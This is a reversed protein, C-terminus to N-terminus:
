NGIILVCGCNMIKRGVYCLMVLLYFNVRELLELM